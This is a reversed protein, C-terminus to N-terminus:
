AAGSTVQHPLGKEPDWFAKVTAFARALHERRLTLRAVRDGDGFADVGDFYAPYKERLSERAEMTGQGITEAVARLEELGSWVEEPLEANLRSEMLGRLKALINGRGSAARLEDWEAPDVGNRSLQDRLLDEVHRSWERYEVVFVRRFMGDELAGLYWDDYAAHDEDVAPTSELREILAAVYAERHLVQEYSQEIQNEGPEFSIRTM